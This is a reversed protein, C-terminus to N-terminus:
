SESPPPTESPEESSGAEGAIEREL